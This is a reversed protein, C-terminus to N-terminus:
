YNAEAQYAIFVHTQTLILYIPIKKESVIRSILFDSSVIEIQKEHLIRCYKKNKLIKSKETQWGGYQIQWRSNQFDSVPNPNLSPRSGKFHIKNAHVTATVRRGPFPNVLRTTVKPDHTQIM